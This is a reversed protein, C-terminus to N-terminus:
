AQSTVGRTKFCGQPQYSIGEPLVLNDKHNTADVETLRQSSLYSSAYKIIIYEKATTWLVGQMGKNVEYAIYSHWM